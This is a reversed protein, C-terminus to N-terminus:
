SQHEQKGQLGEHLGLSLLFRLNQSLFFILGSRIWLVASVSFCMNQYIYEAM